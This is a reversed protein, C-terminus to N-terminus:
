SRLCNRRPIRPMEVQVLARQISQHEAILQDISDAVGVMILTTNASNDSLTKITDALAIQIKPDTVRDLEDIIIISPGDMLQFTERIIESNPYVLLAQDLFIEEEGLKAKLQRFISRWMEQFTMGEACNLRARQYNFKGTLVLFDFLTNALSTKGVGREGFIIAHQGRQFITNIAKDIQEGTTSSLISLAMMCNKLSALMRNNKALPTYPLCGEGFIIAHQGRQFITNIAKDVQEGTTSWIDVLGDICNKLSALM